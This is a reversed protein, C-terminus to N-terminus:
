SLARTGTETQQQGHMAPFHLINFNESFDMFIMYYDATWFVAFLWLSGYPAWGRVLRNRQAAQPSTAGGLQGTGEKRRYITGARLVRPLVRRPNTESIGM